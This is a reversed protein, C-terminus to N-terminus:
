KVLHAAQADELRMQELEVKQVDGERMFSLPHSLPQTPNRRGGGGGGGGGAGLIKRQNKNHWGRRAVCGKKKERKRSTGFDGRTGLCAELRHLRMAAGLQKQKTLLARLTAREDLLEANCKDDFSMKTTFSPIRLADLAANFGQPSQPNQAVQQKPLLSAQPPADVLAHCPEFPDKLATVAAASTSASFEQQQLHDDFIRRSAFEPKEEWAEDSPRAPQQPPAERLPGVGTQRLALPPANDFSARSFSAAASPARKINREKTALTSASGPVSAGAGHSPAVLALSLSELRVQAGGAKGRKSCSMTKRSKSDHDKNANTKHGKSEHDKAPDINADTRAFLWRESFFATLDLPGSTAVAVESRNRKKSKSPPRKWAGPGGYENGGHCVTTDVRASSM